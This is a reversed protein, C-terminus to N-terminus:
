LYKKSIDAPLVNDLIMFSRPLTKGIEQKQEKSLSKVFVFSNRIAIAEKQIAEFDGSIMYKLLKDMGSKIMHMEELLSVQTKMNLKTISDDIVVEDASVTLLNVSLLAILLMKKM